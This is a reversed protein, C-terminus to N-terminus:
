GRRPEAEADAGLKEWAHKIQWQQQFHWASRNAHKAEHQACAEKRERNCIKWRGILL